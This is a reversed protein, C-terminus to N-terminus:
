TDTDRWKSRSKNKTWYSINTYTHELSGTGAVRERSAPTPNSSHQLPASRATIIDLMLLGEQVNM